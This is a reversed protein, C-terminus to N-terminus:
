ATLEVIKEMVKAVHGQAKVNPWAHAIRGQEDILFTSRIVGESTKGYMSKEGWAAYSALAKRSSLELPRM